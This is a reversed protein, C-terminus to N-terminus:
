NPLPRGNLDTEAKKEGWKDTEARENTGGEEMEWGEVRHPWNGEGGRIRAPAQGKTRGVKEWKGGQVRDGRIKAPAPWKPGDRNEKRGMKRRGVGFDPLPRGNLDTEARENTRGGEGM